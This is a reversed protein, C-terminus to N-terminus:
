NILRDYILPREAPSELKHWQVRAATLLHADDM